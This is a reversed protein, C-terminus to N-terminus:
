SLFFFSRNIAIMLLCGVTFCDQIARRLVACGDQLVAITQRKGSAHILVAAQNRVPPHGPGIAFGETKRTTLLWFGATLMFEIEIRFRHSDM